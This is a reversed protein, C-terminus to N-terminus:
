KRGGIRIRRDCSTSGAHDVAYRLGRKAILQELCAAYEKDTRIVTLETAAVASAACAAALLAFARLAYQRM